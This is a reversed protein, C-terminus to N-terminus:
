RKCEDYACLQGSVGVPIGCHAEQFKRTSAMETVSKMKLYSTVEFLVNQQVELFTLKMTIIAHM